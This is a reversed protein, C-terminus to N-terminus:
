AVPIASSIMGARQLAQLNDVIIPLQWAPVTQSALALVATQDATTLVSASVLATLDAEMKSAVSSISMQFTPLLTDHEFTFVLLTAAQVAETAAGAPPAAAWNMLATMSGSLALVAAVASTPVDITVPVTQANLTECASILSTPTPSLANFASALQAYTWNSM